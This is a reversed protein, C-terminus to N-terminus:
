EDKSCLDVIFRLGMAAVHLAEKRMEEPTADRKVLDWLEDLEEKIVAYGHHPTDFPRHKKCAKQYSTRIEEIARNIAYYSSQEKKEKKNRPHDWPYHSPRIADAMSEPEDDNYRGM